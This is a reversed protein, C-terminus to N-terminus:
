KSRLVWHLGFDGNWCQQGAISTAYALLAVCVTPTDPPSASTTAAVIETALRAFLKFTRGSVTRTMVSSIGVVFHIDAIHRRRSFEFARSVSRVQLLRQSGLRGKGERRRTQRRATGSRAGERAYFPQIM